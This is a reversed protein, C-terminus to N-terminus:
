GVTDKGLRTRPGLPEQLTISHIGGGGLLIERSPVAIRRRGPFLAQITERARADCAKDFSPIVAIRQGM